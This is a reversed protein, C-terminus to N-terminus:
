RRWKAWAPSKPRGASRTVEQNETSDTASRRAMSPEPRTVLMKPSMGVKRARPTDSPTPACDTKGQFPSPTTVGPTIPRIPKSCSRSAIVNPM